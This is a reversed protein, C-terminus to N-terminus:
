WVAGLSFVLSDSNSGFIELAPAILVIFAFFVCIVLAFAFRAKRSLAKPGTSMMENCAAAKERARAEAADYRQRADPSDPDIRQLEDESIKNANEDVGAIQYIKRRTRRFAVGAVASLAVAVGAIAQITYTMVSPDVYAFARDFPVASWLVIYFAVIVARLAHIRLRSAGAFIKNM